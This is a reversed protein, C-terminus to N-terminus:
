EGPQRPFMEYTRTYQNVTVPDGYEDEWTALYADDVNALLTRSLELYGVGQRLWWDATPWSVPKGALVDRCLERQYKSLDSENKVPIAPPRLPDGVIPKQHFTQFYAIAEVNYGCFLSFVALSDPRKARERYEPPSPMSWTRIGDLEPLWAVPRGIMLPALLSGLWLVVVALALRALGRRALRSAWYRELLALIVPLLGIALRAFRDTFNLRWFYPVYNKLFLSPLPIFPKPFGLRAHFGAAFLLLVMCALLWFRVSPLKRWYFILLFALVLVALFVSFERGDQVIGLYSDPFLPWPKVTFDVRLNGLASLGFPLMGGAGVGLTLWTLRWKALSTEPAIRWGLLSFILVLFFFLFLNLGYYMQAMGAIAMLLGALVALRWSDRKMAALWVAVAGYMLGLNALEVDVWGNAFRTAYVLPLSALAASFLPSPHVQRVLFYTAVLSLLLAAVYVLNVAGYMGLLPRLLGTLWVHLFAIDYGVTDAGLPFNILPCHFFSYASSYISKEAWWSMWNMGIADVALILPQSTFFNFFM